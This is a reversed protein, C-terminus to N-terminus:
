KFSSFVYGPRSAFPSPINPRTYIFEVIHLYASSSVSSYYSDGAFKVTFKYNKVKNLSVTISAQGKSNTKASYTKGNITFKLVKNKLANDKSDKLTATLKKNKDDAEYTSENVSISTKQKKVVIKAVEFSAKYSDDGLFSIAFTYTGTRPLNIQLQAIGDGNTTKNYVKGNFGIKIDKYNLTNGDGDLLTVKFYDGTRGQVSTIVSETIMNNYRIVSSKRSFDTRNNIIVDNGKKISTIELKFPKIGSDILNNKISIDASPYLTPRESIIKLINISEGVVDEGIKEFKNGEINVSPTDIVLPNSSNEAFDLLVVDSNKLLFKIGSINAEFPVRDMHLDDVWVYHYNSDFKFFADCSNSVQINTKNEGVLFVDKNLLITDITYNYSSDYYSLLIMDGSHAKEIADSIDKTDNGTHVVPIAKVYYELTINLAYDNSITFKDIGKENATYDFFLGNSTIKDDGMSFDNNLISNQIKIPFDPWDYLIWAGRITFVLGSHKLMGMYGDYDDIFSLDFWNEPSHYSNNYFVLRKDIFSEKSDINVSYFNIGLYEPNGYYALDNPSTNNGFISADLTGYLGRWYVAAGSNRATNNFFNSKRILGNEGIWVIAGGFQSADKQNSISNTFTSNYVVGVNGVWALAGGAHYGLNNRFSSKEIKSYNGEVHVAGGTYLATNKAFNSNEILLNNGLSAIAGGYQASNSTFNCYNINLYNAESYIAGGSDSVYQKEAVGNVFAINELNVNDGTIILIQSLGNANLVTNSGILSIAKNIYIPTGNGFYSGQLEISSNPLASDIKDQIFAFSNDSALNRKSSLNLKLPNDKNGDVVIISNENQGSFDLGDGNDCSISSDDLDSAVDESASVAM